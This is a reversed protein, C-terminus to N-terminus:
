KWSFHGFHNIRARWWTRSTRPPSVEVTQSMKAALDM